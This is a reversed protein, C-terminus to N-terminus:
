KIGQFEAMLQKFRKYDFPKSLVADAGHSIFHNVDSDLTNGTVGFIPGSYGLRRIAETATPGDMIPMEFDMLIADYSLKVGSMRATVKEVACLGNVAEECSHGSARLLKCLLKRNLSTDDVVLVDYIHLCRGNNGESAALRFSESDLIPPSRRARLVSYPSLADENIGNEVYELAKSYDLAMIAGSHEENDPRQFACSPPSAQTLPGFSVRRQMDIEVSFTSGKNAGASYAHITGSHMQVISSTIWLGLGSGGGAQLVEPSFQVIENFLRLQNVESLGVGTDTVVIRLKGTITLSSPSSGGPSVDIVNNPMVSNSIDSLDLVKGLNMVDSLLGHTTSSSSHTGDGPMEGFPPVDDYASQRGDDDPLPDLLDDNNAELDDLIGNVSIHVKSKKSVLGNFHQLSGMVRSQLAAMSAWLISPPAAPCPSDTSVGGAGVSSELRLANDSDGTRNPVFSACVTVSGGRPTFKLANSILNRLVQDMKFKDMVVTDDQLLDTMTYTHTPEPGPGPLPVLLSTANSLNGFPFSGGVLRTTNTITVGAERAQSSFMNVCDTIFPIVSVDHKHMELIGSELKDFCLLDNLLEVATRCASKVCLLTEFHDSDKDDTSTM